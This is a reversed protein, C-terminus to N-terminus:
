RPCIKKQGATRCLVLVRATFGEHLAKFSFFDLEHTGTHIVCRYLVLVVGDICVFKILRLVCNCIYIYSYRIEIALVNQLKIKSRIFNIHM